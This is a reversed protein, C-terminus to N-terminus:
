TELAQLCALTLVLSAGVARVGLGHAEQFNLAAERSYWKVPVKSDKAPDVKTSYPATLAFVQM